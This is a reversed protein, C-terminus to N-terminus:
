QRLWWPLGLIGEGPCSGSGPISGSDGANCASEKGASSRPFDRGRLYWSGVVLELYSNMKKAFTVKKKKKTSQHRPSSFWVSLERYFRGLHSHLLFPHFFLWTGMVTQLGCKKETPTSLSNLSEQLSSRLVNGDGSHSTGTQKM